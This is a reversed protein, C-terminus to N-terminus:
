WYERNDLKKLLASYREMDVTGDRNIYHFSCLQCCPFFDFVMQGDQHCDCKCINEM